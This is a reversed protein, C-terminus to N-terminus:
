NEIYVGTWNVGSNTMPRGRGGAALTFTDFGKMNRNFGFLYQITPAPLVMANQQVYKSVARLKSRRASTTDYWGAYVLSDQTKDTFRGPNIARGFAGFLAGLAGMGAVTRNNPSTFMNSVLFPLTFSTGTGEFVTTPYMQYPNVKGSTPSPFANSTITATDQTLISVKIGAKKM